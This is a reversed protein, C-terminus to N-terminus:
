STHEDNRNTENSSSQSKEINKPILGQWGALDRACNISQHRGEYKDNRLNKLSLLFEKEQPDWDLNDLDVTNECIQNDTPSCFLKRFDIPREQSRGQSRKQGREYLVTLLLNRLPKEQEQIVKIDPNAPIKGYAQALIEMNQLHKVMSKQPDPQKDMAFVLPNMTLITFILACKTNIMFAIEKSSLM